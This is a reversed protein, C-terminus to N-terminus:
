RRDGAFWDTTPRSKLLALAVGSLGGVVLPTVMTPQFSLKGQVLLGVLAVLFLGFTFTAPTQLGAAGARRWALVMGGVTMAVLLLRLALILLALVILFVKGDGDSRAMAVFFAVGAVLWTVATPVMLVIAAIVTPPRRVATPLVPAGSAGAHPPVAGAPPVADPPLTSM